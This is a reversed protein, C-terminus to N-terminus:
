REEYEVEEGCWRDPNDSGAGALIIGFVSAKVCSPCLRLTRGGIKIYSVGYPEDGDAPDVFVVSERNAPSYKAGCLFCKLKKM